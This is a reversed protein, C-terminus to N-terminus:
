ELYKKCFFYGIGCYVAGLDAFDPVYGIFCIAFAEECSGELSTWSLNLILAFVILILTVKKMSKFIQWSM